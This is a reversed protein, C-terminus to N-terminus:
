GPITAVKGVLDATGILADGTKEMAFSIPRATHDVIWTGTKGCWKMVPAVAAMSSRIISAVSSLLSRTDDEGNHHGPLRRIHRRCACAAGAIPRLSLGKCILLTAAQAM